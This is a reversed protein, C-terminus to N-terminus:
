QGHAREKKWRKSNWERSLDPIAGILFRGVYDTVVSFQSHTMVFVCGSLDNSHDHSAFYRFGLRAMSMETAEHILRSVVEYWSGTAGVDIRPLSGPSPSMDFGAGNGPRLILSVESNGLEYHGILVSKM